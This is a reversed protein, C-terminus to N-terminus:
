VHEGHLLLFLRSLVLSPNLSSQTRVQKRFRTLGDWFLWCRSISITKEDEGTLQNQILDGCMYQLFWLIDDLAYGDFRRILSAMDLKDNVYDLLLQRWQTFSCMLKAKLESIDGQMAQQYHLALPADLKIQWCRSLLTKPLFKANEALLIFHFNPIPEELTKLLANAAFGNMTDAYEIIVLQFSLLQPHQHSRENLERIQEIKIAHGAQQPRIVHMDPHNDYARLKCTSCAGCDSHHECFWLGILKQANKLGVSAQGEFLVASPLQGNKFLQDLIPLMDM